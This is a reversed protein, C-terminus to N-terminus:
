VSEMRGATLYGHWGTIACRISPRVTPAAENGDWNWILEAPRADGRTIEIVHIGPYQPQGPVPPHRIAMLTRDPNFAWPQDDTPTRNFGGPHPHWPKGDCAGITGETM